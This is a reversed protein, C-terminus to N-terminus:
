DGTAYLAPRERLKVPTWAGTGVSALAADAVATAAYGDWASPGTAKGLAAAELWAQLELDYARMFRERWDAPVRGEFRGRCKVVVPNGEALGAVGREGVVEGRIDYGYAVNMSVEVDVLVGSETRFLVLLPDRLDARGNRRPTLVSVAAIEEALLWRAVDADHVMTDNLAMDDVYHGPVSPNRHAAHLLLPAGIAGGDVAAKLARYAPDYRRMFGVQVLRAGRAAEADVIRLCAGQTTALPKECFVPKGAAICGLVYGEHTPGWSAVLVADVAPDGIVDEGVALVRPGGLAAAVREARGRDVDAVAVVAGGSLVRTLRRVHDEGILGVGIVGVNVTM